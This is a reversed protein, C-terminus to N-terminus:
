HEQFCNHRFHVKPRDDVDFNLECNRGKM